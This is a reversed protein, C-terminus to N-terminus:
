GEGASGITALMVTCSDDENFVEMASSRGQLSTQGDIRQCNFGRVRLAQEVSDLM